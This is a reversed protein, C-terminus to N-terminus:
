RVKTFANNGGMETWVCTQMTLIFWKLVRECMWLWLGNTQRKRLPHLLISTTHVPPPSYSDLM